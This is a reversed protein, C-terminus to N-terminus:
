RPDRDSYVTNYPNWARLGSGCGCNEDKFFILVKGTSTRVRMPKARNKQLRLSDRDYGEKFILTPGANADAAIMVTNETIVIRVRTVRRAHSVNDNYDVTEFDLGEADQAPIVLVKAPFLDIAIKM